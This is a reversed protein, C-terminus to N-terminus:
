KHLIIIGYNRKNFEKAIKSLDKRAQNYVEKNRNFSNGEREIIKTVEELKLELDERTMKKIDKTHMKLM